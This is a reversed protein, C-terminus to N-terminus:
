LLTRKFKEGNIYQDIRLAVHYDITGNIMNGDCAKIMKIGLEKLKEPYEEALDNEERYDEPLYYLQFLKDKAKDVYRLKWGDWTVLAPGFFSAYIIFDHLEQKNNQGLLTPLYSIGDKYLPKPVDVMEALTAMFDYNAMVHNTVTGEKVKGPWRVIFPIRTGGEWNTTKVGSMGANGNFVDGSLESLYRTAINDYRNGQLDHFDGSCRGDEEYYAKHGNDSCFFIATNGDLGLRKLTELILGVTDDLRLIMSAYEKEYDTLEYIDRVANHIEPVSIPGHPLQSPHYLFFPRDKNTEIFEVIKKNFLDQSYVNKGNMDSRTISNKANNKLPTKGCDPHNNGPIEIIHSNEFMFPPYFGHCMVHDYYGYHDDWGHRMIRESTTAFGWELKGIQGTHYGAERAIGPLFIEDDREQFSTNNILERVEEYTITGRAIDTYIDAQTFSWRGAHCDHIGTILSARAPACFACGYANNFLIGEAALRDINPTKIIKQGYCSLMGKGLDDAYILIINPKEGMDFVGTQMIDYVNGIL